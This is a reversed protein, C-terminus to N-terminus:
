TTINCQIRIHCVDETTLATPPFSSTVPQLSFSPNPICYNMWMCGM